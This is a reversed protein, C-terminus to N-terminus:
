WVRSNGTKWQLKVTHVRAPSISADGTGQCGECLSRCQVCVVCSTSCSLWTWALLFWRSYMYSHPKCGTFSTYHWGSSDTKSGSACFLYPDIRQDLVLLGDDARNFSQEKEREQEGEEVCGGKGVDRLCVWMGNGFTKKPRHAPVSASRHGPHSVAVRMGLSQPLVTWLALRPETDREKDGQARPQRPKPLVLHCKAKSPTGTVQNWDGGPFRTLYLGGALWIHGM